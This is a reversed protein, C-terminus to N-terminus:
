LKRMDRKYLMLKKRFKKQQNKLNNLRILLKNNNKIINQKQNMKNWDEVVMLHMIKIKNMVKNKMQMHQKM